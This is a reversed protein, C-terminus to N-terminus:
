DLIYPFRKKFCLIINFQSHQRVTEKKCNCLMLRRYSNKLSVEIYEANSLSSTTTMIKPFRKLFPKGELAETESVKRWYIVGRHYELVWLPDVKREKISLKPEVISALGLEGFCQKTLCWARTSKKNTRKACKGAQFYQVEFPMIDMRRSDNLAWLFGEYLGHLRMSHFSPGCLFAPKLM